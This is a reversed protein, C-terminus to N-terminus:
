PGNREFVFANSLFKAMEDRKVSQTPCYTAGSCGSIVGTARLSHVHKCFTDAAPLQFFPGLPLGPQVLLLPAVSRM